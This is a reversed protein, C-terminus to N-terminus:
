RRLITDKIGKKVRVSALVQSMAKPLGEPSGHWKLPGIDRHEIPGNMYGTFAFDNRDKM